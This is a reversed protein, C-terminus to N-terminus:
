ISKSLNHHRSFQIVISISLVFSINIGLLCVLFIYSLYYTQLQTRYNQNAIIILLSHFPTLRGYLLCSSMSLYNEVRQLFSITMGKAKTESLIM